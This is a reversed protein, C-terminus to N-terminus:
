SAYDLENREAPAFRQPLGKQWIEELAARAGEASAQVSFLKGIHQRGSAGLQRTLLPDAFLKRMGARIADPEPDAWVYSEPYPVNGDGVEQLRYPLAIATKATLLDVSGGYATAIVAKGANMSHIITLGLGESRHPSVYCDFSDFLAAIEEVSYVEERFVVDSRKSAIEAIRSIMPHGGDGYHIKVFCCAGENEEFESIYADVFALPNKRALVSGADAIYGFVFRDNPIGFHAKDYHRDEHIGRPIGPRILRTPVRSCVTLTRQIFSSACWVEDFRDLIPLWEPKLSALEFYCILINYYDSSLLEDTYAPNVISLTFLLDLNIHIIQIPQHGDSPIELQVQEVREFGVTWNAAKVICGVEQLAALYGRASV